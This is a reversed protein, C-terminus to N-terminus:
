AARAQPGNGAVAELARLLPQNFKAGATTVQIHRIPADFVAADLAQALERQKHPPVLDDRSTLVVASPVALRKLWPRSDFRGLERGAEAVDRASHRMLESELWASQPSSPIGSRRLGIGWFASPFV